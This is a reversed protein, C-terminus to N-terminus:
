LEKDIEFEIAQSYEGLDISAVTGISQQLYRLLQFFFSVLSVDPKSFEIANVSRSNYYHCIREIYDAIQEDEEGQYDIFFAGNDVACGMDIGKSGTLNKLHAELTSKRVITNTSALIGGM